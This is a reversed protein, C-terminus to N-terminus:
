PATIVLNDFHIETPEPELSGAALAIDGSTYLTDTTEGMLQGNVYFALRSGDCVARLHNTANGQNVVASRTWQILAQHDGQVVRWIGYYGDGSILFAYGDGYQGPQVRCFVGYGNNNNAPGEAQTTDVDIVVDAFDQYAVGWMMIGDTEGRVFYYGDGYGVAAETYSAVEWGSNPDEFDDQFLVEGLPPPQSPETPKPTPLPPPVTPEAPPPPVTAEVPPPPVPTTTSPGCAIAAAALLLVAAVIVNQRQNM